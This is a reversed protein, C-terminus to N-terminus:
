LSVVRSLEGTVKTIVGSMIELEDNEFNQLSYVVGPVGRNGRVERNEVGVRVNFFQDSGLKQEISLLGNHVQPGKGHQIKYNGIQIDLDDHVIYLDTLKIKYFRCIKAVAVGSDNMFTQPKVLILDKTQIIESNLKKAMSWQENVMGKALEEVVMFGVNHRNKRDGPNGLGIIVKM